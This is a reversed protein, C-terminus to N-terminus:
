IQKFEVDLMSYNVMDYNDKKTVAEQPVEDSMVGQFLGEGYKSDKYEFSYINLGSNSEGIKSINKKLKRDSASGAISTAAGMTAAAQESKAAVAGTEAAMQNAMAQQNASRAGGLEGMEMGLLTSQRSMEKEEVSAEGQRQLMDIQSAANREAMQNASEQQGISISAAQSQMQGQNAMAQALSAIGSGGAAGQMGQLINARSQASQEAQFEAQKKNVTLDEMKNEMNDYPNKFEMNKYVEKQKEMKKQQAQEDIRAQKARGAQTEMNKEAMKNAEASQYMSVGAGVVAVGVVVATVVAM